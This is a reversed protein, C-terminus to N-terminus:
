RETDMLNQYIVTKDKLLPLIMGFGFSDPVFNHSIIANFLICLHVLVSQGGYAIHESM